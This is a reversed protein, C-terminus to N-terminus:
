LMKFRMEFKVVGIQIEKGMVVREGRVIDGILIIVGRLVILICGVIFVFSFGRVIVRWELIIVRDRL